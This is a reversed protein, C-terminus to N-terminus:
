SNLPVTEFHANDKGWIKELKEIRALARGLTLWVSDLAHGHNWYFVAYATRKAM